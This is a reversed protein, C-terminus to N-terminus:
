STREKAVDLRRRSFRTLKRPRRWKARLMMAVAGMLLPAAYISPLTYRTSSAPGVLCSLLVLAFPVFLLKCPLKRRWAVFLAICPLWVLYTADTFLVVVGPLLSVKLYLDSLGNRVPKLWEPQVLALRGSGSAGDAIMTDGEDTEAGSPVMAATANTVDEDGASVEDRGIVARYEEESLDFNVDLVRVITHGEFGLFAGGIGMLASLYSEPHRFGQAAWVKFYDAYAEASADRNAIFKIPDHAFFRYKEAIERTPLIEGIAAWELASMDDYHDKYYKATQQYLVGLAEQKGGSEVNLAPFVAYPLVLLMVVLCGVAQGVLPLWHKRYMLAAVVATPVVIYLGTKRTLCLLLGLAIFSVVTRVRCLNRGRTRVIEALMIFYPVYILSFLSDKMMTTAWCAYFPMLCFFAFLAFCLPLPCKRRRLYAVGATFALATLAGQILVFVFIGASWDGTLADSAMAFAAYLLTTFIPHHDTFYADTLSSETTRWDFPIISTPHFEPYAQRIQYFTDYYISDPYDIIAYPLWLVFMILAFLLISKKSWRPTIRTLFRRARHTKGDRGATVRKPTAFEYAFDVVLTAAAFVLTWLGVYIFTDSASFAYYGEGQVYATGVVGLTAVVLSLAALAIGDRVRFASTYTRLRDRM